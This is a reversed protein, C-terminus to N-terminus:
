YVLFCSDTYVCVDRENPPSPFSLFHSSFPAFLALSIHPIPTLTGGFPHGGVFPDDDYESDDGDGNNMRVDFCSFMVCEFVMLPAM